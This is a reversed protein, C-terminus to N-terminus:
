IPRPRRSLMWEVWEGTVLKTSVKSRVNDKWEIQGPTLEAYAITLEACAFIFNDLHDSVLCLKKGDSDFCFLPLKDPASLQYGLWSDGMLALTLTGHSLKLDRCNNTSTSLVSDLYLDGCIAPASGLNFDVDWIRTGRLDAVEFFAKLPSSLEQEIASEFKLISAKIPQTHRKFPRVM